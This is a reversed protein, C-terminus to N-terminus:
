PIVVAPDWAIGKKSDRAMKAKLLARLMLRQRRKLGRLRKKGSRVTWRHGSTRTLSARAWSRESAARARQMREKFDHDM